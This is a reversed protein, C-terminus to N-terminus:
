SGECFRTAIIVTRAFLLKGGCNGGELARTRRYLFFLFFSFHCLFRRFLSSILFGIARPRTHMGYQVACFFTSLMAGFYQRDQSKDHMM